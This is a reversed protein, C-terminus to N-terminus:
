ITIEQLFPICMTASRADGLLRAVNNAWGDIPYPSAENPASEDNVHKWMTISQEIDSITGFQALNTGFHMLTAALGRRNWRDGDLHELTQGAANVSATLGYLPNYSLSCRSVLSSALLLSYTTRDFYSLTQKYIQSRISTPQTYLYSVWAGFDVVFNNMNNWILDLADKQNQTASNVYENLALAILCEAAANTANANIPLDYYNLIIWGSGYSSSDAVCLEAFTALASLIAACTSQIAADKRRVAELWLMYFGTMDRGVHEWGSAGAAAKYENFLNQGLNADAVGGRGPWDLWDQIRSAVLSWQDSTTELSYAAWASALLVHHWTVAENAPSGYGIYRHSFKLTEQALRILQINRNSYVAATTILPTWLKKHTEENDETLSLTSLLFVERREADLPVTKNSDQSGGRLRTPSSGIYNGTGPWESGGYSAGDADSQGKLSRFCALFKIDSYTAVLYGLVTSSSFSAGTNSPAFQSYFQKTDSLPLAVLVKQTTSVSVKGNVFVRYTIENQVDTHVSGVSVARYERFVVGYGLSTSALEGHSSSTQQRSGLVLGSRNDTGGAGTSADKYVAEFGASSDALVDRSTGKDLWYALNWTWTELFRITFDAHDYQDYVGPNTSLVIASSFSQGQPEPWVEVTYTIQERSAITPVVVWISGSAVYGSTHTSIDVDTRAHRTPDWQWDVYNGNNDRVKICDPDSVVGDDFSIKIQVCENSRDLTLPNEIVATYIKVGNITPAYEVKLQDQLTLSPLNASNLIQRSISTDLVNVASVGTAISVSM